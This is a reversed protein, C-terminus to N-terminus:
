GVPQRRPGGSEKSGYRAVSLAILSQAVWYTALVAARSAEFPFRFRDIALLSDSVLFVLAGAAALRAAPTGLVKARGAAQAAMAALLATYVVVPVQLPAGLGPWLVALVVAAVAGFLAFPLGRPALRVDSAFAALYCVHTLAFSALGALFYDSHLMLFVDGALALGLGLVIPLRYGSPARGRAALALILVTTLPKFVYILWRGGPLYHGAIALAACASVAAAWGGIGRASRM